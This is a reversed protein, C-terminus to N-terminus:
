KAEMRMPMLLGDGGEFRFFVPDATSPMYPCIMVGKLQNLKRLYIVNLKTNGIPIGAHVQHRGNECDNSCRTRDFDKGGCEFCERSDADDPCFGCKACVRMMGSGFCAECLNYQIEPLGPIEMWGKIKAIDVELNKWLNKAIPAGNVEAVSQLRSVRVIVKGDTAYTFEEQSFPNHLVHRDEHTSCFAKLIKVVVEEDQKEMTKM